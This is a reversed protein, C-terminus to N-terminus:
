SSWRVVLNHIRIVVNESPTVQAHTKQFTVIYLWQIDDYCCHNSAVYKNNRPLHRNQFRLTKKLMPRRRWISTDPILLQLHQRRRSKLRFWSGRFGSFATDDDNCYSWRVINKLQPTAAHGQSCSPTPAHHCHHAVGDFDSHSQTSHIVQSTFLSIM